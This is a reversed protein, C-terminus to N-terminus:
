RYQQLERRLAANELEIAELRDTLRSLKEVLEQILRSTRESQENLSGPGDATASTEPSGKRRPSPIPPTTTAMRTGGGNDGTTTTLRASDVPDEMPAATAPPGSATLLKRSSSRVSASAEVIDMVELLTPPTSKYAALTGPSIDIPEMVVRPSLPRRSMRRKKVSEAITDAGIETKSRDSDTGPGM